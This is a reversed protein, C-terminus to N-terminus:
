ATVAVPARRHHANKGAEYPGEGLGACHRPATHRCPLPALVTHCKSITTGFPTLPPITTRPLPACPLPGEQLSQDHRARM